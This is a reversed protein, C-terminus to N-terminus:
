IVRLLYLSPVWQSWSDVPFLLSSGCSQDSTTVRYFSGDLSPVKGAISVFSVQAPM